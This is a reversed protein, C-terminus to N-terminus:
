AFFKSVDKVIEEASKAVSARVNKNDRLVDPEEICLESRIRNTIETLKPDDTMNFAPLLDALERVNEVLSDNFYSRTEGPKCESKLKFTKLKEAMHGVTEIIRKTTDNLATDAASSKKIEDRIDSLVDDDLDARFDSADPFPMIKMELKFKSRIHLASPYDAASWMGNLYQKSEEIYGPYGAEFRDAAANFKRVLPRMADAFKVYNANPLVRPGEDAWPLTLTYFLTRAEGIIETLAKLHDSAIIMKNFRGAVDTAHYRDNTEKTVKKDLKRATWCSSTVFCLTAKRSLPSAVAEKTKALM